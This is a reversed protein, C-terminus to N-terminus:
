RASEEAIAKPKSKAPRGIKAPGARRGLQAEIAERFRVTGFAYQRQLHLRVDDLEAQASAEEVFERYAACRREANPGLATFVAHPRVLADPQGLGNSHYSSWRYDEPRAVMGTRLPDLEIYRYCRLLYHATGVM